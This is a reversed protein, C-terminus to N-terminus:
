LDEEGMSQGKIERGTGCLLWLCLLALSLLSCGDECGIGDVGQMTTPCKTSYKRKRPSSM